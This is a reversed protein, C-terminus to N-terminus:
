TWKSGATKLRLVSVSFLGQLFLLGFYLWVQILFLFFQCWVLNQISWLPATAEWGCGHLAVSDGLPLLFTSQSTQIQRALTLRKRRDGLCAKSIAWDLPQICGFGPLYWVNKGTFLLIHLKCVILSTICFYTLVNAQLIRWLNKKALTHHLIIYLKLSSSYM